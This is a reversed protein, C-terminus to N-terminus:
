GVEVSLTVDQRRYLCVGNVDECVYYLAYGPIEYAGPTCGAPTSVEFEVRRAEQSVIESPNPVTIAQRDVKWGPPPRVWFILDDVENNWHAKAAARPAFKVHARLTAGPQVRTPVVTTEVDTYSGDDRWIRGQPDPETRAAAVVEFTEAPRAFEAGGPEVTLEVPQEGRAYIESRAENVWGYFSYPKDLRPGYQQIRRHWIYNNPDTDLAMQWYRVANQFDDPRRHESDYRARYAVGTRFLTYGHQPDAEVAAQFAELSENPRRPDPSLFAAHALARRAGTGGVAAVSRMEGLDPVTPDSKTVMTGPEYEVDLFSSQIDAVDDASMEVRRIVGYEDLALTIPVHPVELLNLSDVLIPWGMQKWQMFLRAREPHQEQIIGVMQVKGADQLQKTAQHWGPM